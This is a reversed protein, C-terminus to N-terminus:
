RQIDRRRVGWAGLLVGGIAIVISAVVGTMDWQGLMPMGYHATLALQHVWDPLGLAPALLNLLYTAVVFLAAIEAALSTRWWGGVAFGIGAVAAAFLGLSVSGLMADGASVGGSAAGLGVGGAFLVTMLAVCVLAAVGGAIVWRTRATPSSLVMELRGETEDAAWKAVLTAGAFGAAIFFLEVYLQLWGGASAFDLGPFIGAFIQSLNTDGAIQESMPGVLSALLAGFLGLGLGWALARPLQEGFARSTPGRVGLLETPIGPLGVGATVGLDRRRFLEVGIVFFAIALVYVLGLPVWDYEGVLGVHNVTWRFPSLVVLPGGIDLGSMVWTVLMVLGAVGASGARGLVPALAFALGGFFVAIGGVWAAFAFASLPPIQDGLSADGFATSSITTCIALVAMALVLMTLHGALKELAIRRKGFPAAAVFDLSGRRAETALTASLAMMSWLATGLAFVAGYKWSMYGGLTGLQEPKGFLNVMSAPMSGILNDIELRTQPSPFVTSIAAGMVFAMGGLLGAAIIFALRSDRITKGYISGFGYLRRRLPIPPFTAAAPRRPTGASVAM